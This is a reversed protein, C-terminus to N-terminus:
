IPQSSALFPGTGPKRAELFQRIKISLPGEALLGSDVLFRLNEAAKDSDSTKIMELIRAAESKNAELKNTAEGKERELKLQYRNNLANLGANVLGAFAAGFIALALPNTWRSLRAEQRKLALEHEQQSQAREKLTLERSRFEQEARSKERELEIQALWKEREFDPSSKPIDTMSIGQGLSQVILVITEKELFM